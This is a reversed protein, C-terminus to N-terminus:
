RWGLIKPCLESRSHVGIKSFIEKLHDKVTHESIFLKEAIERNTHGTAALFATEQQRGSLNYHKLGEEICLSDQQPELLIMKLPPNHRTLNTKVRWCGAETKFYAPEYGCTTALLGKVPRGNLARRAEGNIFFPYTQQRPHNRILIVGVGTGAMAALSDFLIDNQLTEQALKRETTDTFVTLFFNNGGLNIPSTNFLGYRPKNNRAIIQLEINAAYGNEKIENTILLRQEASIGGAEISTHGIVEERSRGMMQTFAENVEVYTGDDPKTIATPNPAKWFFNNIYNEHLNISLGNNMDM